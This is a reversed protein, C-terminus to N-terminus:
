GNSSKKRNSRGGQSYITSFWFISTAGEYDAALIIIGDGLEGLVLAATIQGGGGSFGIVLGVGDGVLVPALVIM